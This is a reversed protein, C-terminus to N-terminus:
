SSKWETVIFVLTAIILMGGAAAFTWSYGTRDTLAGWLPPGAFMGLSSSSIYLSMASATGSAHFRESAISSLAPYYVGHSMGGLLGLLSLQWTHSAQPICALCAGYAVLSSIAALRRRGTELRQSIGLRTLVAGMGYGLGFVSVAGAGLRSVAPAMFSQWVSFCFGFVLSFMLISRLRFFNQKFGQIFSESPLDERQMSGPLQGLIWFMVAFIGLIALFTGSLGMLKQFFEALFPGAALMVFGPLGFYGIMRGRLHRPVADVLHFIAGATVMAAGTGHLMRALFILDPWKLAVLYTLGGGVGLGAGILATTINGYRDAIRGALIQVVLYVSFYAGMAWGIRQSSWGKQTLFAPLFLLMWMSLSILASIQLYASLRFAEQQPVTTTTPMSGMLKDVPRSM